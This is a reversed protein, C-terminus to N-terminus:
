TRVRRWLSFMEASECEYAFWSPAYLLDHIVIKILWRFISEVRNKMAASYFSGAIISLALRSDRCKM